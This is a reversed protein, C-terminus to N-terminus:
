PESEEPMSAEALARGAADTARHLAARLRQGLIVEVDRQAARWAPIAAMWRQRGKTALQLPRARADGHVKRTDARVVLGARELPAVLRSTTTRDMQLRRALEAVSVPSQSRALSALAAYQTVTLGHPELAADYLATLRRALGRVKFCTCLGAAPLETKIAHM